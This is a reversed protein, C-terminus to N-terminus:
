VPTHVTVWDIFVYGTDGSKPQTGGLNTETQLVWHMPTNPIRSKTTGVVKGDLLFTVSTPLWEITATHWSTYTSNTSFAAQENGSTAGQYHVFGNITGNLSGEPFDIEGDRPWQESRPWLLFATKYGPVPDARFRVEYRGYTRDWINTSGPALLFPVAAQAKGDSGIGVKIRLNGDVVSLNNQNYHSGTGAGGDATPKGNTDFWGTEYAGWSKGYVNLFQGEAAPTLFNEEKALKWKSSDVVSRGTFGGMPSPAPQPTPVPPTIPSSIPASLVDAISALAEAKQRLVTAIDRLDAQAKTIQTQNLAM